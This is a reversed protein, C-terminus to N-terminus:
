QERATFSVEIGFEDQVTLTNAFNPPDIGFDSMLLRTTLVGTITDGQLKATVDFTVPQTVERITLDGSLKFQVEDGQTYSEPSGEVATAIFEALPFKNFQPGNERIWNDRRDQDTTLTALNVAFRNPGLPSALNDLNIQFEGEIEQTSGVVDVLGAKIGYKAFAGDFFEEDVLYSAKSEAPVIVYTHQGSVAQDGTDAKAALTPTVPVPTPTPMPTSRCAVAVLLVIVLGVVSLSRSTLKDFMKHGGRFLYSSPHPIPVRLVPQTSIGRTQRDPSTQGLLAM